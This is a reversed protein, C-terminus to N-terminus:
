TGIKGSLAENLEDVVQMLGGGFARLAAVQGGRQFFAGATFDEATMELNIDIHAAVQDLWWRQEPTFARGGAEQAKLWEVYRRQVLAPYPEIDEDLAVHRVLSVLDALVRAVRQGAGPRAGVPPLREM